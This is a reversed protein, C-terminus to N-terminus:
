SGAPPTADGIDTASPDAVVKCPEIPGTTLRGSFQWAVGPREVTPTVPNEMVEILAIQGPKIHRPYITIGDQPRIAQYSSSKELRERLGAQVAADSNSLEEKTAGVDDGKLFPARNNGCRKGLPLYTIDAPVGWDALEKEVHEPNRFDYIKLNISGDQNKTLAYAPDASGLLSPVAVGAAVAAAVAAGMALRRGSLLPQERRNHRLLRSWRRDRPAATAEQALRLRQRALSHPPEHELEKILTKLEDM